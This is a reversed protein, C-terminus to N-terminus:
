TPDPHHPDDPGRSGEEADPDDDVAGKTWALLDGRIREADPGSLGPIKVDAERTGATYVVLQRLGLMREVPGGVLDVHQIRLRPVWREVKTVIGYRLILEDETLRYGWNRYALFPLTAACAAAVVAVGLAIWPGMPVGGVLMGTAAVGSVVVPIAWGMVWVWRVRRDLQVM